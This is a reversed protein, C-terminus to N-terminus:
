FIEQRLMGGSGGLHKRPAERRWSFMWTRQKWIDAVKCFLQFVQIKNSTTIQEMFRM